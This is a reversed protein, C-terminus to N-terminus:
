PNRKLSWRKRPSVYVRLLLSSLRDPGKPISDTDPHIYLLELDTAVANFRPEPPSKSPLQDFRPTELISFFRQQNWNRRFFLYGSVITDSPFVGVEFDLFM